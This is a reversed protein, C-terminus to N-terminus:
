LNERWHSMHDYTSADLTGHIGISNLARGNGLFRSKQGRPVYAALWDQWLELLHRNWLMELLFSDLKKPSKNKETEPSFFMKLPCKFVCKFHFRNTKKRDLKLNTPIKLKFCRSSSPRFRRAPDGLDVPKPFNCLLSKASTTKSYQLHPHSSNKPSCRPPLFCTWCKPHSFFWYFRPVQKERGFLYDTPLNITFWIIIDIDVKLTPKCQESCSGIYKDISQRAFLNIKVPTHM